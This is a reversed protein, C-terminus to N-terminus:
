PRWPRAAHRARTLCTDVHDLLCDGVLSLRRSHGVVEFGQRQQIALSAVNGKFAGATIFDLDLTDFAWALLAEAAESMLGRGWYPRGLWFGVEPTADLSHLAVIGRLMAKDDDKLVLALTAATGAEGTLGSQTIFDTADETTFPHPVRVLWRAVEVDGLYGALAFEDGPKLPRLVLRETELVPALPQRSHWASFAASLLKM